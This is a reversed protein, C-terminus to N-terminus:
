IEQQSVEGVNSDYTYAMSWIDNQDDRLIKGAQTWMKTDFREADIGLAVVTSPTTFSHLLTSSTSNVQPQLRDNLGDDDLPWSIM